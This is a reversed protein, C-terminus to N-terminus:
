GTSEKWFIEPTQLRSYLRVQAYNRLGWGAAKRAKVAWDWTGGASSWAEGARNGDKLNSIKDMGQENRWKVLVKAIQGRGVSGNGIRKARKRLKKRGGRTEM